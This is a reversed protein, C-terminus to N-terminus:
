ERRRPAAGRRPAARPRCASRGQRRRRRELAVAALAAAEPRVRRAALASRQAAAARAAWSRVCMSRGMVAGCLCRPYTLARRLVAGFVCFRVLADCFFRMAFFFAFVCEYCLETLPPITEGAFLNVMPQAADDHAAGLVPQVFLNPACSHNVFRAVGGAAGADICFANGATHAEDLAAPAGDALGGGGDAARNHALQMNFIYTDDEADDADADKIVTGFFGAVYAGSPITDWSRVGWGRGDHTRFLELRYCLGQQSTRNPCTPPCGCAPGCEYVVPLAAMLRAPRGDKDPCVYPLTGGANRRACACRAGAAACGGAVAACACGGGPPPPAVVGAAYRLTATYELAAKWGVDAAALAESSLLPSPMIGKARERLALVHAPRTCPPLADDVENVAVVPLREAGRSIDDDVLGPRRAADYGKPLSAHNFTVTSSTLSPQGDRRRLKFKIVKFSNHRHPTSCAAHACFFLSFLADCFRSFSILSTPAWRLATPSM